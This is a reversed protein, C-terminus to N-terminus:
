VLTAFIADKEPHAPIYDFLKCIQDRLLPYDENNISDTNASVGISRNIGFATAIIGAAQYSVDQDFDVESITLRILDAGSQPAVPAIFYGGNSLVYYEWYGGGYTPAMERLVQHTFYEVAVGFDGLHKTLFAFRDEQAIVSFTIVGSEANTQKTM